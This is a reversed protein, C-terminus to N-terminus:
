RGWRWMWWRRRSPRGGYTALGKAILTEAVARVDTAAQALPIGYRQAYRATAQEESSCSRLLRVACAATATLHSWRGSREDLIAGGEDTLAAHVGNLLQWM